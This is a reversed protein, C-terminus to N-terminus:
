DLVEHLATLALEFVCLGATPGDTPAPMVARFTRTDHGPQCVSVAIGAGPLLPNTDQSTAMYIKVSHEHPELQTDLWEAARELERERKGHYEVGDNGKAMPVGRTGKAM